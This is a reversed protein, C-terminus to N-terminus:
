FRLGVSFQFIQNTISANKSTDSLGTVYRAQVFIRQTLNLGLGGAAAFDFANTEFTEGVPIDSNTLFSFQPGAELSLKDSILYFKALVPIAVYDLKLDRNEIKAGQSSYLVEPQISFNDLVSIEVIAGAHYSTLNDGNFQDGNLTSFNAGFKLGFKLIQAQTTAIGAILFSAILFLKKM